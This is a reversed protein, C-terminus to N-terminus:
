GSDDTMNGSHDTVNSRFAASIASSSANQQSLQGIKV